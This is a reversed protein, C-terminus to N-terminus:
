RAVGTGEPDKLAVADLMEQYRILLAAGKKRSVNSVTSQSVNLERSIDVQRRGRFLELTIRADNQSMGQVTQDRFLLLGNTLAEVLPNGDEGVRLRTWIASHPLGKRKRNLDVIARIAERANWWATGSRAVMPDGPLSSVTTGYGLGLRLDYQGRLKLQIFLTSKLAAEISSCIGQIEDGTAPALSMPQVHDVEQNVWELVRSLTEFLPRQAARRSSVVDGIIACVPQQSRIAVTM